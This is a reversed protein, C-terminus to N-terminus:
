LSYFRKIEAIEGENGRDSVRKLVANKQKQWDINEILTDWFLIPRLKSLDPKNNKSLKNKLEAIDNHVQLTMLFGEDLNLKQEIKHALSVNMRRKGKTISVLTQPYEDISLAFRGKIIKRKKFERELFIGPHIGKIYNLTDIM